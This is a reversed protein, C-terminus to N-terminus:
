AENLAAVQPATAARSAPKLRMFPKEILHWSVYGAAISLVISAAAFAGRSIAPFAHMLVQQVVYGYIYIGYSPDGFRGFRSILPTAATAFSVASYPVLILLAWIEIPTGRVLYIFICTPIVAWPAMPIQRRFRWLLAGYAFCAGTRTLETADMTLFGGDIHQIELGYTLALAVVLVPVISRKMLVFSAALLLYMSVEMPLTWLAGNVQPLKNDEFVGPLLYHMPWLFVNKLYNWVDPSAFYEHAPLKSVLPGVVLAAIFITCILAPFVRVARRGIFRFFNPDREWSASVLYGSIAFFTFVGGAAVYGLQFTKDRLPPVHSIVVMLAACLRVFDFNNQRQM